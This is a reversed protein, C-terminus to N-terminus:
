LVFEPIQKMKIIPLYVIKPKDEIFDAFKWSDMGDDNVFQYSIFNSKPPEHIAFMTVPLGYFEYWSPVVQSIFYYGKGDREAYNIHGGRSQVNTVVLRILDILGDLQINQAKMIEKSKDM